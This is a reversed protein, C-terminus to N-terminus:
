GPRRRSPRAPRAPVAIQEAAGVRARQLVASPPEGYRELFAGAFRPVHTFGWRFAIEAVTAGAGALLDAHARGLRVLRVYERPSVGVHARFNRQLTRAGVGAVRSLRALSLDGAPERDILEVVRQVPLPHAAGARRQALQESYDHPQALLLGTIIFDPWPNLGAGMGSLGSPEDLDRVLLRVARVWSAVAPAALDMRPRFRVPGAVPRDLLLELRRELAAREIRLHLQSYGDSLRMTPATRPSIIGATTPTLLVQEDGCELRNQGALAFNVDYYSVQETLQVHIEHGVTHAHLLSVPGLDVAAISASADRGTTLLTVRFPTLLRAVVAQAQEWAAADAGRAMSFRQLPPGAGAPGTAEVTV